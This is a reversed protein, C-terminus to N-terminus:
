SQFKISKTASHRTTKHTHPWDIDSQLSIYIWYLQKSLLRSQNVPLFVTSVCFFRYLFYQYVRRFRVYVERLMNLLTCKGPGKRMKGVGHYRIVGLVIMFLVGDIM